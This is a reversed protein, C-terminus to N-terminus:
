NMGTGDLKRVANKQERIRRDQAEKAAKEAVETEVQKKVNPDRNIRLVLKEMDTPLLMMQLTKRSLFEQMASTWETNMMVLSNSTFAAQKARFLGADSQAKGAIETRYQNAESMMSAVRGYTNPIYEKGDIMVKERRLMKQITELTSAAKDNQGLALEREYQDISALIQEAAEGAAENLREKRFLRSDEIEKAAQAQSSQVKNFDTILVRPPTRRPFTLSQLSIGADMEDLSQQAYERAISEVNRVEGDARGSDAQNRLFEDITVRSAAHVIGRRVAAIVLKTEIKEDNKSADPDEAINELTKGPSTRRYTFLCQAHVINKDATILAGDADPDLQGAGGEALAQPGKDNLAKTEFDSLKPFFQTNMEVSQEGTQVKVVEGFPRPFSPAFGSPLDSAVIKGFLLRVGRESENVKNFGSLLFAAFIGVMVVQLVRYTIRLADTLSKSAPDTMESLGAEGTGAQRLTVSASGRRRAPGGPGGPTLGGPGGPGSNGDIRSM